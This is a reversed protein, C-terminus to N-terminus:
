KVQASAERYHEWSRRFDEKLMYLAAIEQHIYNPPTSSKSTKELTRIALDIEGRNKYAQFLDIGLRSDLPNFLFARELAQIDTSAGQTTRLLSPMQIAAIRCAQEFESKQAHNEAILKWGGDSQWTKNAKIAAFLTEKDGLRLWLDFLTMRQKSDLSALDPQRLLIDKLCVDFDERNSIMSLYDLKLDLSTALNWLQHRLDSHTQAHSIMQRFYGHQGPGAQPLRKLFERWGLVAYEPRFALWNVGEQYCMYAYHPELIRARTFDLLAEENSDYLRLRTEAREYYLSYDMPRMAIARTQLKLADAASGSNALDRARARLVAASSTGPIVPKGFAVAIWAAGLLVAALGSIVTGFKELLSAEDPLQRPRLTIGALLGMLIAYGLGHIPVDIISHLLGLIFVIAATNRLRRDQRHTRGKSKRGGWPGSSRMVWLLLLLCPLLTLLGGEVLLWLLDSEPHLARVRADQHTSAISFVTDFNGLGIGIWPATSALRLTDSYLRSRGDSALVQDYSQADLRAALGGESVFVVAVAMFALSATIAMKKFFGRRLASTGLWLTMGVFLLILGARSSNMFIVTIPLFIGIAFFMWSREKRRHADYTASACLVCTIAALSSIHNRNAFPGFPEGWEALNRPWWAITLWKLKEAITLWSLLIGGGAFVQLMTRRQAASFGRVLAWALWAVCLTFFMWAELTVWPQQTIFKSTAIGTDTKLSERWPMAGHFSTPLFATLPAAIAAVLCLRLIKPLRRRAPFAIMVMGVMMAALGKSWAERGAGLLIVLIPVCAFIWGHWATGEMEYAEIASDSDDGNNDDTSPEELAKVVGEDDVLRPRHRRKPETTEDFTPKLDM